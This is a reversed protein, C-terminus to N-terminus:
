LRFAALAITSGYIAFGATAAVLLVALVYELLTWPSPGSFQRQALLLKAAPVGARAMLRYSPQRRM